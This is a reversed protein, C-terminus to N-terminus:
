GPTTDGPTTDGPTTDSPTTAFRPLSDAIEFWEIRHRTYVHAQPKIASPDDLSGLLLHIEGPWRDSEYTLPTGCRPCFRRLVGASSRHLAPEGAVFELDHYAFGAYAAVPAGTAHRCSQCHCYAAWLPPMKASYRIAGCLCQGTIM